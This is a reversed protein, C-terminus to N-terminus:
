RVDRALSVLRAAAKNALEAAATLTAGNALHAVLAGAFEDGGGTTDVVDVSLGPVRHARSGEAVIAGEGGLTIVVSRAIKSLQLAATEWDTAHGLLQAAETQNVILPDLLELLRVPVARFPSPNLALRVGNTACWDAVRDIVDEPIEFQL